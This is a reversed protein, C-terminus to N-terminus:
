LTIYSVTIVTQLVVETRLTHIPKEQCDIQVTLGSEGIEAATLSLNGVAGHANHIWGTATVLTQADLALIPELKVRGVRGVSGADRLRVADAVAFHLLIKIASDVWDARNAFM